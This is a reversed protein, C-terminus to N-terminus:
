WSEDLCARSTRARNARAAQPLRPRRRRGGAPLRRRALAGSPSCSRGGSASRPSRSSCGTRRYPAQVAARREGLLRRPGAERTPRGRLRAEPHRPAVCGGGPRLAAPRAVPAGQAGGRKKAMSVETTRADLLRSADQAARHGRRSPKSAARAAHPFALLRRPYALFRNGIPSWWGAPRSQGPAGRHREDEALLVATLIGGRRSTRGEESPMLQRASRKSRIAHRCADIM